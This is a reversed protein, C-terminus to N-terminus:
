TARVFLKDVLDLCGRDGCLTSSVVVLSVQPEKHLAFESLSSRSAAAQLALRRHDGVFCASAIAVVVRQHLHAARRLPSVNLASSKVHKASNNCCRQCTRLGRRAQPQPTPLSVATSHLGRRIAKNTGRLAGVRRELAGRSCCRCAGRALGLALDVSRRLRGQRSQHRCRPPAALALMLVAVQHRQRGASAFIRHRCPRRHRGRFRM